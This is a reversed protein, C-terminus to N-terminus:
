SLVTTKCVLFIEYGYTVKYKSILQLNNKKYCIFNPLFNKNNLQYKISFCDKTKYKVYLQKVKFSLSFM